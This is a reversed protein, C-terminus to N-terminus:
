AAGGLRLADEAAQGATSAFTTALMGTVSVATTNNM